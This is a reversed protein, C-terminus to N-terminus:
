PRRLVEVVESPLDDAVSRGCAEFAAAAKDAREATLTLTRTKTLPTLGVFSYAGIIVNAIAALPRVRRGVHERENLVLLVNWDYPLM